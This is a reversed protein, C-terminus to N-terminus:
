FGYPLNNKNKPYNLFNSLVIEYLPIDHNKYKGNQTLTESINRIKLTFYDALIDGQAWGM